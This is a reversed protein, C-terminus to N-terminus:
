EPGVESRFEEFKGGPGRVIRDVYSIAVEFPYGIRGTLIAKLRQEEELTGCRPAVLRLELHVPSKQVVQYQSIPFVDAYRLEGLRPWLRGGDPLALMNRARGLVQRLVPLGRGCACPRGPEAYDGIAYRILPMAFNHLPTLVVRGVQGAVCPEGDASLVEVFVSESQVHYHDYDPCQLAICGIEHASYTDHVPVNWERRCVERIEPDLYEAITRVGRLNDLQVRQERCERALDPLLSPYLLLYHPQIRGLWEAQQQATATISLGYSPGSSFVSAVPIGWNPQHGGAPYSNVGDPFWRIAALKGRCDRQHWEHDRLVALSWFLM